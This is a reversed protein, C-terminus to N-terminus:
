IQSIIGKYSLRQLAMVMKNDPVVTKEIAKQLIFYAIGALLL